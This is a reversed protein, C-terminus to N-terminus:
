KKKRKLCELISGICDTIMHATELKSMDANSSDGRGLHKYWTVRYNTTKYEFNPPCGNEHEGEGDCWCYARLAFTDNEFSDGCNEIPTADSNQCLGRVLEGLFRLGELVYDEIQSM